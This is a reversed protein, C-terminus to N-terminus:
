TLRRVVFGEATSFLDDLCTAVSFRDWTTAIFAFRQKRPNLIPPHKAQLARFQLKYYIQEARPHDSQAPLLQARTALELGTRQAYFAVRSPMTKFRASFFFAIYDAEALAPPIAGMPIRYWGQERALLFDRPHPMVGVLVRDEPYMAM